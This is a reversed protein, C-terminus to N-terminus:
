FRFQFGLFAILNPKDAAELPTRDGLEKIPRDGLGDAILLVAKVNGM